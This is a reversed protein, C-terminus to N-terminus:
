AFYEGAFLPLYVSINYMSHLNRNCMTIPGWVHSYIIPFYTIDQNVTFHGYINGVAISVRHPSSILKVIDTSLRCSNFLIFSFTVYYMQYM